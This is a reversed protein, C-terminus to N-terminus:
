LIEEIVGTGVDGGYWISFAAGPQIADTWEDEAWFELRVDSQSSGPTFDQGSASYARAGFQREPSFVYILSPSGDAPLAFHRSPDPYLTVTARASKMADVM